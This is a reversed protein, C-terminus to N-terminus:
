DNEEMQSKLTAFPRISEGAKTELTEPERCTANDAHMAAFPMAMILAEEVLDVLRLKDEELEWVEFGDDDVAMSKDAAFMLRLEAALSLQLPELCRQCVAAVTVTVRGQLAPWTGERQLGSRAGAFGFALKGCVAADRWDPPLKAPDLLKLDDEVIKALRGFEGIKESFEIVQASAALESPTRRDRLPNGM